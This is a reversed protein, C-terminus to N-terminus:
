SCALVSAVGVTVAALTLMRSYHHRFHSFCLVLTDVSTVHATPGQMPFYKPTEIKSWTMRSAECRRSWNEEDFTRERRGETSQLWPVVEVFCCSGKWM